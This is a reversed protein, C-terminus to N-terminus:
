VAKDNDTWTFGGEPEYFGSKLYIGANYKLESLYLDNKGDYNPYDIEKLTLKEMSLLEKHEEIYPYLNYFYLMNDESAVPGYGLTKTLEDLLQALEKPMYARSEIYVGRFGAPIMYRLKAKIDVNSLFENWKDGASGKYAGFSWKLSESHIFGAMLRYDYMYNVFGSEPFKHYPLQYVLDGKELQAEIDKVFRDELDWQKKNAKLSGGDLGLVDPETGDAKNFLSPSQDWLGVILCVTLLVGSVAKKVATQEGETKKSVILCLVAICSFMIYPSVRNLCRIFYVNSLMAVFGGIGGMTMFLLAIINLRSFFKVDECDRDKLKFGLVFLISTILGTCGWIGIYSSVNENVFPIGHNYDYILKEVFSIGHSYVPMFLQSIKLGYYDMDAMTRVTIVKYDSKIHFIVAPVLALVMFFCVMACIKVAPVINKLNRNKIAGLVGGMGVFFCAFFAHYATGSVAIGMCALIILLTRLSILKRNIKLFEDDSYCRYALYFAVPIFFCSDLFLHILHRSYIFPNFAFLLAGCTAVFYRNGLKRFVLYASIACLVFVTVLYLNLVVPVSKSFLGWFKIICYEPIKLCTAVFSLAQHSYPAGMRDTGWAWREQLLEKVQAMVSFDDAGVYTYICNLGASFFGLTSFAIIVAAFIVAPLVYLDKKNLKNNVM